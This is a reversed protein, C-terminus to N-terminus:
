MIDDGKREGKMFLRLTYSNYSNKKKAFFDLCPMCIMVGGEALGQENQGSKM